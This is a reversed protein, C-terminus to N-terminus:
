EDGELDLDGGDDPSLRLLDGQKARMAKQLSKEGNPMRTIAWAMLDSFDNDNMVNTVRRQLIDKIYQVEARERTEVTFTAFAEEPGKGSGLPMGLSILLNVAQEQRGESMASLATYIEKPFVRLDCGGLLSARKKKDMGMVMGLLVLGVDRVKKHTAEAKHLLSPLEKNLLEEIHHM